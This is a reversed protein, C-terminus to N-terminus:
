HRTREIKAILLKQAATSDTAVFVTDDGGVNGVM